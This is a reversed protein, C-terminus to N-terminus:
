ALAKVLLSKFTLEFWSNLLLKHDSLLCKAISHQLSVSPHMVVKGHKQKTPPNRQKWHQKLDFVLSLM